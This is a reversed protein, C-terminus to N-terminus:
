IFTNRDDLSYLHPELQSSCFSLYSTSCMGQLGDALMIVLTILLYTVHLTRYDRDADSPYTANTVTLEHQNAFPLDSAIVVEKLNLLVDGNGQNIFIDDQISIDCDDSTLSECGDSSKSESQTDDSSISANQDAQQCREALTNCHLNTSLPSGSLQCSNYVHVHRAEGIDSHGEVYKVATYVNREICVTM